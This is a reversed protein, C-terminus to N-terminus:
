RRADRLHYVGKKETWAIGITAPDQSTLHYGGCDKCPGYYAKEERGNRQCELLGERAAAESEYRIKPRRGPWVKTCYELMGAVEQM